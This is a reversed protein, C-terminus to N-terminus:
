IPKPALLHFALPEWSNTAHHRGTPQLRYKRVVRISDSAEDKRRPSKCQDAEGRIRVRARNIHTSFPESLM